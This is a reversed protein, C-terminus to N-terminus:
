ALNIIKKCQVRSQALGIRWQRCCTRNQLYNHTRPFKQIPAVADKSVLRVKESKKPNQVVNLPLYMIQAYGKAPVRRDIQQRKGAAKRNERTAEGAAKGEVPYNSSQGHITLWGNGVAVRDRLSRWRTQYHAGINGLCTEATKERFQWWPSKWRTTAKLLEHLDDNTIRQHYGFYFGAAVTTSQRPGYVTQGDLNTHVAIPEM